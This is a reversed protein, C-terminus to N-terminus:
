VGFITHLVTWFRDFGDPGGALSVAHRGLGVSVVLIADLLTRFRGRKEVWPVAGGYGEQYSFSDSRDSNYIQTQTASISLCPNLDSKSAEPGSEAPRSLGDVGSKVSRAEITRCCLLILPGRELPKM